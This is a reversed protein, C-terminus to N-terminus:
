GDGQVYIRYKRVADDSNDIKVVLDCWEELKPYLDVWEIFTLSNINGMSEWIGIDYLEDESGIRYLDFHYVTVKSGTYVNCLNYTPSSIRSGFRSSFRNLISKVLHTKGAGLSGVLGISKGLIREPYMKSFFDVAEKETMETCM